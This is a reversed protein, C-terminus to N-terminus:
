NNFIEEFDDYNRDYNLCTFTFEGSDVKGKIRSLSIFIANDLNTSYSNKDNTTSHDLILIINPTQWGKYSHYSCIKLRGSGGQFKWKNERRNKIDGNANLDYVHSIDYDDRLQKVLAAGTKENTTLITIDEINNEKTLKELEKRVNTLKQNLITPKQNLWKTTDLLNMQSTERVLIEEDSDNNLKERVQHIKEVITGPLRLTYNFTGPQGRFGINKIENSDEIWLGHEYLDQAKDYVVFIEGENTYFQKLFRIWDGRFDQGEDILIYDYKFHDKKSHNKFYKNISEMKRITYEDVTEKENNTNEMLEIDHETAVRKLFDHYHLLTANKKLLRRDEGENNGFQQSLLDRLYHRLTINFTLILVKSEKKLARAAKESLVISKGSGAVGGWRRISGPKLEAVNSQPSTLIYPKRRELEYDSYSLHKSLEEVLRSLSGDRNFRSSNKTLAYTYKSTNLTANDERLSNVDERIWIKTYNGRKELDYFNEAQERSANHFYVVTEICGYYNDFKESIKVANKIDTELILKKYNEVQHIPTKYNYHYDNINWDKVELIIVGKEPHMLIFDPRLANIYPQEFIMWDEDLYNSNEFVNLIHAEGETRPDNPNINYHIEAM